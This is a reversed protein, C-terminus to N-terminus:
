IENNEIINTRIQLCDPESKDADSESECLFYERFEDEHDFHPYIM